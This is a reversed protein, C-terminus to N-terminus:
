SHLYQFHFEDILSNNNQLCESFLEHDARHVFVCIDTNTQTPTASHEFIYVYHTDTDIIRFMEANALHKSCQENQTIILIYTLKLVTIKQSSQEKKVSIKKLFIFSLFPSFIYSFFM